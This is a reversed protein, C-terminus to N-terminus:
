LVAGIDVHIFWYTRRVSILGSGSAHPDWLFEGNEYMVIHSTDRETWGDVLYLGRHAYHGDFGIVDIHWNDLLWNKMERYWLGEYLAVFHPVEGIPLRLMTALCCRLCDDEADSTVPIWPRLGSIM